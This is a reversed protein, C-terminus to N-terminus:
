NGDRLNYMSAFVGDLALLSKFSGKEEIKGNKFVFIQDAIEVTSLRHAVIILTLNGKIKKLADQIMKESENDLASTAEDLILIDPKKMIARALAIRQKQGGSLKMGRDGVSTDYKDPLTNVFEDVYAYEAAQHIDGLNYDNIGLAINETITGNIIFPDQPVFGIHRRYSALSIDRFDCDDVIIMGEDPRLLGTILDVATSKGCGSRGVFAVTEGKKIDMTLNSYIHNNVYSFSIDKIFIGKQLGSFEIKGDLEKNIGTSQIIKECKEFSPLAKQTLNVNGVINMYKKYLRSVIFCLVLTSSLSINFFHVSIFLMSIIIVVTLPEVVCNILTNLFSFLFQKKFRIRTKAMYQEVFYASNNTSKIYKIGDLAEQIYAQCSENLEVVRTGLIKSKKIIISFPFIMLGMCLTASVILKWSIIYCIIMYFLIDVINALITNIYMIASISQNIEVNIANVFSAGKESLLFQWDSQFYNRFLKQKFDMDINLLVYHSYCKQFLLFIAKGSILLLISISISALSQKVGILKFVETIYVSLKSSENGTNQFNEFLPLLLGIGVTELFGALILLLLSILFIKRYDRNIIKIVKIINM